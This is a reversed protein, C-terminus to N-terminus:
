FGKMALVGCSGPSKGPDRADDDQHDRWSLQSLSPGPGDWQRPLTPLSSGHQLNGEQSGLFGLFHM